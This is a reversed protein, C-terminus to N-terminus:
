GLWVAGEPDTITRIPMVTGMIAMITDATGMITSIAM